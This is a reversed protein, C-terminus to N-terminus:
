TQFVVASGENNTLHGVEAHKAAGNLVIGMRPVKLVLFASLRMAPICKWRPFLWELLLCDM